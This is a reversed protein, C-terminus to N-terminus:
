WALVGSRVEGYKKTQSTPHLDLNQLVFTFVLPSNSAQMKSAKAGYLFTFVFESVFLRWVRATFNISASPQIKLCKNHVTVFRDKRHLLDTM